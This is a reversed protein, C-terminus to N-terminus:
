KGETTKGFFVLFCESQKAGFGSAISVLDCFSAQCGSGGGFNGSGDKGFRFQGNFACLHIPIIDDQFLDEIFVGDRTISVRGVHVAHIEALDSGDIAYLFVM